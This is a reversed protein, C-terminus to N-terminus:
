SASYSLKISTGMVIIRLPVARKAKKWLEPWGKGAVDDYSVIEQLYTEQDTQKGMTAAWSRYHISASFDSAIENAQEETMHQNVQKLGYHAKSAFRNDLQGGLMGMMSDYTEIMDWLDGSIIQNVEKPSVDFLLSILQTTRYLAVEWRSNSDGEEPNRLTMMWLEKRWVSVKNSSEAFWETSYYQREDKHAM